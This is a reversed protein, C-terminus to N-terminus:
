RKLPVRCDECVGHENLKLNHLREHYGCIGCKPGLIKNVEKEATEIISNCYFLALGTKRKALLKIAQQYWRELLRTIEPNKGDIRKLCKIWRGAVEVDFMVIELLDTAM